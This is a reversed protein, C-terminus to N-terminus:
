LAHKVNFLCDMMNQTLAVAVINSVNHLYIKVRHWKYIYIYIYNAVHCKM